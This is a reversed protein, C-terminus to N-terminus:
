VIKEFTSRRLTYWWIQIQSPSSHFVAKLILSSNYSHNTMGKPNDFTGLVNMLTM